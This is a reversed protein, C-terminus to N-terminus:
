LIRKIKEVLNEAEKIPDSRKVDLVNLELRNSVSNYTVIGRFIFDRGVVKDIEPLLKEYTIQDLSERIGLLRTAVDNWCKAVITDSGDDIICTLTLKKVPIDVEKGCNPCLWKNNKLEVKKFCEPCADYLLPRDFIYVVSARVEIRENENIDQLKVRRFDTVPMPKQIEVTTIFGGKELVKTTSLKGIHIELDGSIGRKVYGHLIQIVDGESINSLREAEDNWAVVRISNGDEDSLMFVLRKGINGDERVFERLSEIGSIVGEVNVYPTKVGLTLDAISVFQPEMAYVSSLLEEEVEDERLVKIESGSDVHVELNEVKGSKTYVGVLEIIDKEKLSVAEEAKDNWFVVRVEGTEDGLILSLIKGRKGKREFSTLNGMKKVVGRLIINYMNVDLEGIKVLKGSAQPIKEPDIDEPNVTIKGRSGVHVEVNKNRGERVDAGIIRLVDNRKINKEKILRVHDANWFVVRIEGTEDGLILSAVENKRENVTFERIPFIHLVRGILTVNRMGPRLKDIDIKGESVFKDFFNLGLEKAVVMAASKDTILGGLEEKKKKILELLKWKPIKKEIIVKEIIEEFSLDAM